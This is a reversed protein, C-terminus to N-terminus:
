FVYLLRVLFSIFHQNRAQYNIMKHHFILFMLKLVLYLPTSIIIQIIWCFICPVVWLFYQDELYLKLCGIIISVAVKFHFLYQFRVLLYLNSLYYEKLMPRDRQLKWSKLNLLKESFDALHFGWLLLNSDILAEHQNFLQM